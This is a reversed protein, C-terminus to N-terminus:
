SLSTASCWGWSTKTSSLLLCTSSRWLTGVWISYFRSKGGVGLSLVGHRMQMNFVGVVQGAQVLAFQHAIDVCHDTGMGGNEIFGIHLGTNGAQVHVMDIDTGLGFLAAKDMHVQLQHCAAASFGLLLHRVADGFDQAAQHGLRGIHHHM